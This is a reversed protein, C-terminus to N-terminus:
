MLGGSIFLVFSSRLLDVGFFQLLFGKCIILVINSQKNLM